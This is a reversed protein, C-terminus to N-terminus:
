FERKLLMDFQKNITIIKRKIPIDYKKSIIKIDKILEGFANKLYDRDYNKYKFEKIKNKDLKKIVKFFFHSTEPSFCILELSDKLTSYVIAPQSYTSIPWSFDCLVIISGIRLSDTLNIMQIKFNKLDKACDMLFLDVPKEMHKFKIKRYDM